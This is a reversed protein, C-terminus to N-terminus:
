KGPLRYVGALFILKQEKIKKNLFLKLEPIELTQSSGGSGPSSSATFMKLMSHIREITMSELNRLMGEVYAWYTNLEEERLDQATATAPEVEDDPDLTFVQGGKAGAASFLVAGGSLPRDEHLTWVDAPDEKLLGHSQWLVIRRRLSTTTTGLQSALAETTWTERDEFMKIIAAHVPSVCVNLKKGDKLELVLDVFGLHPRWHLTRNGKLAEYGHTFKEMAKEMDSPLKIKEERLPPWFQGSVIYSSLPIEEQLPMVGDMSPLKKSEQINKNIRGSDEVDKLIVECYHMQSEGFRRKLLELHRREKDLDFTSATLIRDALLTRYANVFLEKSGYINVLMSIIDASRRQRSSKAPDADVPDPMWNQWDADPEDAAGDNWDEVNDVENSALLENALESGSSEDTLSQVICRVTDERQRLYNRVPLCVLELIVGSPDLFRLARIAEIYFVLIETTNVGPHLLRTELAKKLSSVLHPRLDTVKEMCEKLDELAPKSDPFEVIVDFLRRIRAKAVSEHLFFTFREAVASSPSAGSSPDSASSSPSAVDFLHLPLSSRIWAELGPLLAADCSTDCARSVRERIHDRCLSIVADGALAEALGLENLKKHIDEFCMQSFELQTLAQEDLQQLEGMLPDDQEEEEEAEDVDMDGFRTKRRSEKVKNLQFAKFAHKYASRVVPFLTLKPFTTAIGLLTELLVTECGRLSRSAGLDDILKAGALIPRMEQHLKKVAEHLLLLCSREFPDPLSQRGFPVGEEDEEDPFADWFQPVFRRRMNRKSSDVFWDFLLHPMGDDSLLKLNSRIRILSGGGVGNNTMQVFERKLEKWVLAAKEFDVDKKATESGTAGLAGVLGTAACLGGIGNVADPVRQVAAM